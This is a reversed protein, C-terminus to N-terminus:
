TGLEGTRYTPIFSKSNGTTDAAPAVNVMRPSRQTQKKKIRQDFLVYFLTTVCVGVCSVFIRTHPTAAISKECKKIADNWRDYM